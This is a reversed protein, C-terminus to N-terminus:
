FDAGDSLLNELVQRLETEETIIFTANNSITFCYGAATYTINLSFDFSINQSSKL